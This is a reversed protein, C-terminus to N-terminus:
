FNVSSSHEIIKDGIMVNVRTEISNYESTFTMCHSKNINIVLNYQSIFSYTCEHRCFYTVSTLLVNLLLSAAM